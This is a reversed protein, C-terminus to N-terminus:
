RQKPQLKFLQWDAQLGFFMLHGTYDTNKRFANTLQYQFVPGIDLPMKSKNFLRLQLGTNFGLQFKNFNTKDSYLIGSSDKLLANSGILFGPQLGAILSFPLAKQKGWTIRFELPIQM